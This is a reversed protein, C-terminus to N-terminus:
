KEVEKLRRVVKLWDGLPETILLKIIKENSFGRGQLRRIVIMARSIDQHYERVLIKNMTKDIFKDPGQGLIKKIRTLTKREKLREIIKNKEEEGYKEYWEKYYDYLGGKEKKRLLTNLIENPSMREGKLYALIEDKAREGFTDKRDRLYDELAKQSEEKSFDEIAFLSFYNGRFKGEEFLEKIAHQEEHIFVERAREDFLHGKSNEATIIGKLKPINASSIHFGGSMNAKQIDHEEIKEDLGFKQSYILAYDEENHCRFYLTMPGKIIEIKGKPSHGFCAEFLQKDDKYQERYLEVARHKERYDCFVNLFIGIQRTSLRHEPAKQGVTKLLDTVSVDPNERIQKELKIQLEAIGEKQKALQEKFETFRQKKIENGEKISLKKKEEPTFHRIKKLDLYPDFEKYGSTDFTGMWKASEILTRIRGSKLALSNQERAEEITLSEKKRVKKGLERMRKTEQATFCERGDSLLYSVSEMISSTIKISEKESLDLKSETKEYFDFAEVLDTKEKLTLQLSRSNNLDKAIQFIKNKGEKRANIWLNKYEERSLTTIKKYLDSEPDCFNEYLEDFSSIARNLEERDEKTKIELGCPWKELNPM